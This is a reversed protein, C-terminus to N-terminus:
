LKSAAEALAIKLGEMKKAEKEEKSGVAPKPKTEAVAEKKPEAKSDVSDVPPTATIQTSATKPALVDDIAANM